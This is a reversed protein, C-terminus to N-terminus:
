FRGVIDQRNREDRQILNTALDMFKSLSAMLDQLFAQKGQSVQTLKDAQKKLDPTWGDIDAQTPPTSKYPEYQTLSGTSSDAAVETFTIVSPFVSGSVQKVFYKPPANMDRFVVGEPGTFFLPSITAPGNNLNGTAPDFFLLRSPNLVTSTYDIASKIESSVPVDPQPIASRPLLTVVAKDPIVPVIKNLAATAGILDKPATSSPWDTIVQGSLVNNIGALTATDDKVSQAQLKIKDSFQGAYTMAIAAAQYYQNVNTDAWNDKNTNAVTWSSAGVDIVFESM